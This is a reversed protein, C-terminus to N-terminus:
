RRLQDRREIVPGIPLPHARRAWLALALALVGPVGGLVLLGTWTGWGSPEGDPGLALGPLSSVDVPAGGRGRDAPDLQSASFSVVIYRGPRDVDIAAIARGRHLGVDYTQPSRGQRDILSRLPVPRGAISRVSVIVQPDGRRTAADTGEEFLLYTGPEAFSVNHSTEIARWRELQLPSLTVLWGVVGTLSGLLLLLALVRTVWAGRSAASGAGAAPVPVSLHGPIVPRGRTQV